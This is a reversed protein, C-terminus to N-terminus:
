SPPTFGKIVGYASQMKTYFGAKIVTGLYSTNVFGNPDHSIQVREAAPIYPLVDANLYNSPCATLPQTAPPLYTQYGKLVVAKDAADSLSLNLFKALVPLAAKQNTVYSYFGEISGELYAIITGSNGKAWQSNVVDPSPPLPALGLLHLHPDTQASTWVPYSLGGAAIAGSQLAALIDPVSGLPVFKVQSPNVGNRELWVEEALEHGSGLATTGISKGVLDKVSAISSAAYMHFALNVVTCAVVEVPFGKSYLSATQLQGVGDIKVAGATFESLVTGSDSVPTAVTLGYKQYFGAAAAYVEPGEAASAAPTPM